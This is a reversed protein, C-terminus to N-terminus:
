KIELRDRKVIRAGSVVKGAEIAAKLKTKSPEPPKPANMFEPPFVAGDDIEVSKDRDLYLKASFTKDTASIESIGSAKMSDLLYAKLRTVRNEHAQKKGTLEAIANDYLSLAASENKIFATVARQKDAVVMEAAHLADVDIEGTEQDVFNEIRALEHAKYLTINM